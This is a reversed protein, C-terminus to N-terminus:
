EAHEGGAPARRERALLREGRREVPAVVQEVVVLARQEPAEAGEGAAEVQGCELGHAVALQLHEAAEDVLREHHDLLLVPCRAVPQEVGDALVRGLLEALGALPPLQLRAVPGM